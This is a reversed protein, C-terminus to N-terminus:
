LTPLITPMIGRTARDGVHWGSGDDGYMLVSDKYLLPFHPCTNFNSPMNVEFLTM